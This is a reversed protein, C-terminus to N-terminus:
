ALKDELDRLKERMAAVEARITDVTETTAFYKGGTHEATPVDGAAVTQAFSSQKYQNIQIQRIYKGLTFPPIIEVINDYRDSLYPIDLAACTLYLAMKEGYRYTNEEFLKDVCDRCLPVRKKNYIKSWKNLLFKTEPKSQECCVCEVLPALPCKKKKKRM